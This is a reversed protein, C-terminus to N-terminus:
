DSAAQRGAAAEDSATLPRRTTFPTPFELGHLVLATYFEVNTQLARTPKHERLLRLACAEVARALEYLQRDGQREFLREAAAGLVDARPDRTRYVRHGFGM